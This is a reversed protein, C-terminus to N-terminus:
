RPEVIAQLASAVVAVGRLAPRHHPPLPDNFTAFVGGIHMLSPLDATVSGGAALAQRWTMEGMRVRAFSQFTVSGRADAEPDDTHLSAVVTDASIYRTFTTGHWPAWELTIGVVTLAKSRDSEHIEDFPPVRVVENDADAVLGHVDWDLYLNSPYGERDINVEFSRVPSRLMEAASFEVKM